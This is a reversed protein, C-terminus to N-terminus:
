GRVHGQRFLVLVKQSVLKHGNPLDVCDWGGLPQGQSEPLPEDLLAEDIEFPARQPANFPDQWGCSPCPVAPGLADDPNLVFSRDPGGLDVGYIEVFAAALYDQEDYIRRYSTEVRLNARSRLNDLMALVEEYDPLSTDLRLQLLKPIPESFQHVHTRNWDAAANRLVEATPESPPEPFVMISAELKM